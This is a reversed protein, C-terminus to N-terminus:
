ELNALNEKAVKMLKDKIELPTKDALDEQDKLHLIAEDVKAKVFEKQMQLKRPNFNLTKTEDGKTIFVRFFENGRETTKQNVIKLESKKRRKTNSKAQIGPTNSCLAAASDNNILKEPMKQRIRKRCRKKGVAAKGPNEKQEPAANLASRHRVPVALGDVNELHTVLAIGDQENGDCYTVIEVQPALALAAPTAAFQPPALAASQAANKAPRAAHHPAVAASQAAIEAPPVVPTEAAAVLQQNLPGPIAPGSAPATSSPPAAHDPCVVIPAQAAAVLQCAEDEDESVLDFTQGVMSNLNQLATTPSWIETEAGSDMAIASHVVNDPEYVLEQDIAPLDAPDFNLSRRLILENGAEVPDEPGPYQVLTSANGDEAQSGLGDHDNDDDDDDVPYMAWDDEDGDSANLGKAARAESVIFKM